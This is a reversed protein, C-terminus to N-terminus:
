KPPQVIYQTQHQGEKDQNIEKDINNVKRTYKM